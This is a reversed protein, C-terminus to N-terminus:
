HSRITQCHSCGMREYHAAAQEETVPSTWKQSHSTRGHSCIAEEHQAGALGTRRMNETFMMREATFVATDVYVVVHTASVALSNM